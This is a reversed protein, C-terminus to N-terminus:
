RAALRFGFVSLGGAVLLGIWSLWMPASWTGIVIAWNLLIRLLHLLAVVAFIVAAVISFTRQDM